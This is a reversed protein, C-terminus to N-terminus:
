TAPQVVCPCTGDHPLPVGDNHTLEHLVHRQFQAKGCNEQQDEECWGGGGHRKFAARYIAQRKVLRIARSREAPSLGDEVPVPVGAGSNSM